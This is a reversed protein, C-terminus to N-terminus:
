NQSGDSREMPPIKVLIEYCDPCSWVRHQGSYKMPENPRQLNGDCIKCTRDLNSM